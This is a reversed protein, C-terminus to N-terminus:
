SSVQFKQTGYSGQRALHKKAVSDIVLGQEKRQYESLPTTSSLPNYSAKYVKLLIPCHENWSSKIKIIATVIPVKQGQLIPIIDLWIQMDVLIPYFNQM